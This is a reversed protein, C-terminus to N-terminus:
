AAAEPHRRLLESVDVCACFSHYDTRGMAVPDVYVENERTLNRHWYKFHEDVMHTLVYSWLQRYVCWYMGDGLTAALAAAAAITEAQVWSYKGSSCISGDPAVGYYLGGHQADFGMAMAQDFLDKARAPLWADPAHHHIQLLLKAWETFHGPQYGWPRLKNNPDGKNYNFDQQWHADYHEWIRGQTRQALTVTLQHAIRTARDLYRREGTAEFAAILAECCHMNANQGRYPALRQLDASRTEAYLSAGDEWFHRELFDFTEAVLPRAAQVGAQAARAHAMLVFAIGYAQNDGDRVQGNDLIWAYGGTAPNFHASRLFDVGHRAAELLGPEGFHRAGVAFSITLRASGVLHRQRNSREPEGDPRFYQHFGGAPDICAPFYFSLVSRAHEDLFSPTMVDPTLAVAAACTM